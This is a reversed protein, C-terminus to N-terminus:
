QQYKAVNENTVKEFAVVKSEIKEGRAAAVLLAVNIDAIAQPTVIYGIRFISNPIAIKTLSDPTADLSGVFYGPDDKAVGSDLIAQYAGVAVDATTSIWVKTGPDASIQTKAKEYGQQQTSGGGLEVQKANPATETLGAAMGKARDVGLDTSRDTMIAVTAKGGLHATIWKGTEEGLQKATGYNDVTLGTTAGKWGSAYSIVQVGADKAQQTVPVLSDAQVPWGMIAKVDGREIWAQWDAVQKDPKWQPDDSLFGLGQKEIMPKMQKIVQNWITVDGSGFSMAVYEKAGSGSTGGTSGCAALLATIATAISARILLRTRKKM